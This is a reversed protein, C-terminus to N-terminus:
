FLYIFFHGTEINNLHSGFRDSGSLLYLSNKTTWMTSIITTTSSSCCSNNCINIGPFHTNKKPINSHPPQVNLSIPKYLKYHHFDCFFFLQLNSHSGNAHSDEEISDVAEIFVEFDLLVRSWCHTGWEIILGVYWSFCRTEYTLWVLM